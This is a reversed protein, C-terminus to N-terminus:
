IEPATTPKNDHLMKKLKDIMEQQHLSPGPGLPTAKKFEKGMDIFIPLFHELTLAFGEELMDAGQDVLRRGTASKIFRLLDKLEHENFHDDLVTYVTSKLFGKCDLRRLIEEKKPNPAAAKEAHKAIKAKLEARKEEPMNTKDAIVDILHDAREQRHKHVLAEEEDTLKKANLSELINHLVADKKPDVPATKTAALEEASAPIFVMSIMMAAAIGAKTSLM